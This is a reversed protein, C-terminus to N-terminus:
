SGSETGFRTSVARKFFFIPGEPLDRKGFFRRCGVEAGAVRGRRFVHLRRDQRRQGIEDYRRVGNRIKDSNQTKGIVGGDKPRHPPEDSAMDVVIMPAAGPGEEPRCAISHVAPQRCRKDAGNRRVM